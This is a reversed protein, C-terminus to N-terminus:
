AILFSITVVQPFKIMEQIDWVIETHIHYM